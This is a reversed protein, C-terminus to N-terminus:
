GPWVPSIEERMLFVEEPFLFYSVNHFIEHVGYGFTHPCKKYVKHISRKPKSIVFVYWQLYILLRYLLINQQWQCRSSCVHINIVSLYLYSLIRPTRYALSPMQTHKAGFIEIKIEDSYFAKFWDDESDQAVDQCPM